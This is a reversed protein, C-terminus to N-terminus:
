RSPDVVRGLFLISGTRKEQIIFIFPHDAMFVPIEPGSEVSTVSSMEVATAAAAETGKEDLEIFAQHIVQDIKLDEYPNDEMGTFDADDSFATPMGMEILSDKIFYKTEFKFKPIYIIVRQEILSSKWKTIEESTISKELDKLDDKKPLIILMSLDDGSYPLEIMQFDSTETYNFWAEEDSRRMMPTKISEGAGIRFEQEITDEENFQKVWDGKFYIANTLVLKTDRTLFGSPILDKIKDNTQEEIFLNITQRSRETEEIFDLNTAKGGYYREVRSMYDENFPYSQQAWLANGTSLKYPRDKKNIQNYMAASNPRLVSTEPFHFVSKIESATQGRAGDYAMALAISISYPSYFINGEESKGLESYFEFAFRNNANVVEQVGQLSSNAEEAQPPQNPQFPFIIMVATTSIAVLLIVGIVLLSKNM